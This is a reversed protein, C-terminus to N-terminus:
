LQSGVWHLLSTFQIPKILVSDPELSKLGELRERDASGTVVAVRIKPVHQRIHRLVQEGRGEGLWLDLIVIQPKWALKEIGEEVSAATSTEHGNLRLLRELSTRTSEHDEIILIRQRQTSATM